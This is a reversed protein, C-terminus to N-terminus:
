TLSGKNRLSKWIAEAFQSTVIGLLIWFGGIATTFTLPEDLFLFASVTGFLPILMNFPAVKSIEETQM